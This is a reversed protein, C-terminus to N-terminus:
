KIWNGFIFELELELKLAIYKQQVDEFRKNSFLRSNYNNIEEIKLLVQRKPNM